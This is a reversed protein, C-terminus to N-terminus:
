KMGRLTHAMGKAYQQINDYAMELFEENSDLGGTAEGLEKLDMSMIQDASYYDDAIRTFGVVAADLASEKKTLETTLIKILKKQDALSLEVGDKVQKLMEELNKGSKLGVTM